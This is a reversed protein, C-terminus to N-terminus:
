RHGPLRLAAEYASEVAAACADWTFRSAQEPGAVALRRRLEDDTLLRSLADALADVDGPPVTLAAGGVVEPLSSASSVVTPVGSAMAELPPLGFGEYISPYAFATAGAYLAALDSEPVYGILRVSPASAASEIIPKTLWGPRGAIVLQHGQAAAGLSSFARILTPWDKRPELTGVGLVYPQNLRHAARLQEIRDAPVAGFGATVGPYAVTIREAPVGALEEVDRATSESDALVHRAAAAARPVQRSLYDRLTPEARDPHRLFSLDHVTIVSPTRLLPPALFDTAHFLSFNRLWLEGPVPLRLRYWTITHAKEPIGTIRLQPHVTEESDLGPRSTVEESDLGPRAAVEESDLGLRAAVEAAPMRDAVFLVYRYAGRRALARILERAYRGIGATQRVAPTADVAIRLGQESKMTHGRSGDRGFTM